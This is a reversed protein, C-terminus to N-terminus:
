SRGLELSDEGGFSPLKPRELGMISVRRRRGKQDKKDDPQEETYLKRREKAIDVDGDTRNIWIAERLDGHQEKSNSNWGNKWLTSSGLRPAPNEKHSISPNGLDRRTTHMERPDDVDAKADCGGRGLFSPIGVITNRRRPEDIDAKAKDGGLFNPLGMATNRRDLKSTKRKEKPYDEQDASCRCSPSAPTSDLNAGNAVKKLAEKIVDMDIEKSKGTAVNRETHLRAFQNVSFGGRNQRREVVNDLPDEYDEINWQEKKRDPVSKMFSKDPSSDRRRRVESTIENMVKYVRTPAFSDIIKTAGEDRVKSNVDLIGSSGVLGRHEPRAGSSEHGNNSSFSDSQKCSKRDWDLFGSSDVLDDYDSALGKTERQKLSKREWDLFGSSDV